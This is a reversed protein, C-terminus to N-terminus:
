WVCAYVWTSVHVSYHICISDYMCVGLCVCVYVCAHTCLCVFVHVCVCVYLYVWVLVPPEDEMGEPWMKHEVSSKMVVDPQSVPWDVSELHQQSLLM